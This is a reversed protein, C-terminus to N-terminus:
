LGDPPFPEDSVTGTTKPCTEIRSPAIREFEGRNKPWLLITGVGEVKSLESRHQDHLIKGMKRGNQIM